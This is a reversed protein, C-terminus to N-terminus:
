SLALYCPPELVGAAAAGFAGAAPGEAEYSARHFSPAAERAWSWGSQGQSQVPKM